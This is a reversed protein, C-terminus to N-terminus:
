AAAKRNNMEDGADRPLRWFWWMSVLTAAGFIAFAPAVTPGTLHTEGRAKMLFHLLAAALGVSVSQMFQQAMSATTTARSMQAQELDAYAMGNLSTFQLSRFFGGVALTTMIVWQPTGIRFFAYVMFTAACIVGNAVLVSRFGFRRLIPPATTKMALAGVASIFTMGGAAFATMGFGEQLLMALLFPTAGPMLRFFSGGLVSARFTAIRFIALDIIAHPTRRAHAWYLGLCALGAAFLGAVAPAPLVNGRLSDFGFILGALGFGTLLIGVWDIPMTDQEKVNPVFARVLFFGVVAIPLNLFFIWRWSIYTVIAGGLVPGVVPGLLAPMTVVSMAGVLESKPTTRLLVLRGVPGMMAGACGQLLRFVVLETLSNAFGCAASALAYGVMAVMFIRKAGFRDALWGGIPLFVASALLYMTIALSLQLPEVRLARAMSPLANNISTANLTQMLLASGIILPVVWGRLTAGTNDPSLIAAADAGAEDVVDSALIEDARSTM